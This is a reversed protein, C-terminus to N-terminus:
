KWCKETRKRKLWQFIKKWIPIVKKYALYCDRIEQLGSHEKVLKQWQQNDAIIEPRSIQETLYEYREVINQLKDFM